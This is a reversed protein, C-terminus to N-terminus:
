NIDEGKELKKINAAIRDKNVQQPVNKYAKKLYSLARKYDGKASYGRALGYNAQWTNKFKKANFKFAELAKEKEGLSILLRGYGHIQNITGLPLAEDMIDLAEQKKNMRMLIQAKIQLNAFTKQSFFQGSISTNIWQLAQNLDGGNNLAYRAAQDWSQINFGLSGQLEKQINDMVIAVVPVEIKFPIEKKEWVLSATTSTASVENFEFALVEQHPVEKSTVTVRLADEAEKYFFSGWATTNHSFIVTVEGNEKIEMHLGYKGAKLKKGEITVDHTFEITTNEDAGARWPSSTSTGYGLKNMGYPVLGGWIKRGRVSPRSYTISIDSIGIRQSITAKQSGSPLTLRQAAATHSFSYLAFCGIIFVLKLTIKKMKISNRNM